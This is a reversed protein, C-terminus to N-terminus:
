TENEFEDFASLPEDQVITAKGVPKEYTEKETKGFIDALKM